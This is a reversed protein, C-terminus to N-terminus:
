CYRADIVSAPLFAPASCYEGNALRYRLAVATIIVTGAPAPLPWQLYQAPILADTYAVEITTTHSGTPSAGMLM